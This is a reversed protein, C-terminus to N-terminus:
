PERDTKPASQWCSVATKKFDNKPITEHSPRYTQQGVHSLKRGMFVAEAAPPLTTAAWSGNWWRLPERACALSQAFQSPQPVWIASKASPYFHTAASAHAGEDDGHAAAEIAPTTLVSISYAPCNWPTGIRYRYSLDFTPM